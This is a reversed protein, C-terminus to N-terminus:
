GAKVSISKAPEAKAKPLTLRLVGDKMVAEIASDDIMHSLTFAREFDGTRYECLALSYGEHHAAAGRGTISLVRKDLSVDVQDPKVGPVEVVLVLSDETEYIDAVPTYVPQTRTTEAKNAAGAGTRTPSDAM